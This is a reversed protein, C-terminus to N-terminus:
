FLGSYGPTLWQKFQHQQKPTLIHYLDHKLQMTSLYYAAEQQQLTRILQQAAVQDFTPQAILTLQQRKVVSAEPVSMASLEAIYAEVLLVVQERQQQTLDLSQVLSQIPLLVPEQALTITQAMGGESILLALGWFWRLM